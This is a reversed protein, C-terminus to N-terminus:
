WDSVSASSINKVIKELHAETMLLLPPKQYFKPEQHYKSRDFNLFEM